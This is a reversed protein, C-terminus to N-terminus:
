DSPRKLAKLLRPFNESYEEDNRFDAVMRNQLADRLDGESAPAWEGYVANDIAVPILLNVGGQKAEKELSLNIENLVGPRKLSSESCILIVRDNNEIGRRMVRHLAEGFEADEEFIWTQVGNKVLDARLRQAFATDDGGHSIFTSQLM